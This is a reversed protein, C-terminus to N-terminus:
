LDGAMWKHERDSARDALSGSVDQDGEDRTFECDDAPNWKPLQAFKERASALMQDFREPTLEEGRTEMVNQISYVLAHAWEEEAPTLFTSM